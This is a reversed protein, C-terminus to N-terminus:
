FEAWQYFAHSSMPSPRDGATAWVLIIAVVTAVLILAAIFVLRLKM